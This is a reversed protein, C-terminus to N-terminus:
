LLDYINVILYIYLIFNTENTKNKLKYNSRM